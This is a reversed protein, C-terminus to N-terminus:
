GTQGVRDVVAVALVASTESMGLFAYTEPHFVLVIEGAGATSPWAIGVGTRGAGDTVGEVARLGPVTAAAEYLAARSQPRLYSDALDLVDKGAANVSGPEGSGHEALYSRMGAVDTPLDALYGPQPTCKETQGAVVENGKMVAARGNRCGPLIADTRKGASTERSLGDRTGDVSLWSESTAPGDQARRYIFQDPRPAVDPLRLAAAAANRLVQTADARAAPVDGGLRDPALVLVAAVAAAVGAAMVSGLALRWNRWTSRRNRATVPSSERSAAPSTNERRVPPPESLAPSAATAMAMLRNRAPALQEPSAPPIEADLQQVLRLEDM